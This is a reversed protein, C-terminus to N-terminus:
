RQEKGRTEFFALQVAFLAHWGTTGKRTTPM